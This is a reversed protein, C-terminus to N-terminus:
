VHARGITFTEVTRAEQKGSDIDELEDMLRQRKELEEKEEKLERVEKELDKFSADGRKEEDELMERIEALRAEIEQLRNM